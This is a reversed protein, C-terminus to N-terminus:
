KDTHHEVGMYDCVQMFLLLYYETLHNAM